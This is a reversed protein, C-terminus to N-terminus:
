LLVGFITTPSDDTNLSLSTNGQTDYLRVIVLQKSQVVEFNITRQPLDFLNGPLKIFATLHVSM